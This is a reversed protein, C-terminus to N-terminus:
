SRVVWQWKQNQDRRRDPDDPLTLPRGRADIVLGMAGGMIKVSGGRGPGGMGVDFRHLPQLQINVVQGFPISIVELAGNKIDVTNENGENYKIRLKLITNGIPARGVPSIVTCLNTFNSADMAQVTLLPTFEAAAGIAAALNNRDMALTTVGGPQLANLLMLLTQGREPASALTSGTAIIPEFTPFGAVSTRMLKEPFDRISKRVANYLAQTALAQEIALEEPTVPLSAPHLSKNYIYDSAIEDPIDQALWRTISEIGSDELVGVGGSGTGTNPHVSLNLNGEFGAAVVTSAAGVDVGLVGKGTEAYEKSIFRVTRGLAMATPLMTDGSWRNLEATGDIKNGWVQRAAAALKKQAPLLQEKELAPRINPAIVLPGHTGLLTKVEEALIQNGAYLVQPRADKPLLYSALGVPDLLTQVSQSAGGETGGAIIVLDPHAHVVADLRDTMTRRDNLSIVEQVHAYTTRALHLASQVSVDELLGVVITKLVHGASFTAACRDVGSGDSQTPTILAQDAGILTRGTVAELDRLAARVGELIDRLPPRATTAATGCALFRYRGEVVDFLIARTNISGVDIALVSEANVITTSM